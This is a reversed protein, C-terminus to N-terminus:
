DGAMILGQKVNGQGYSEFGRGVVNERRPQGFVGPGDLGSSQRGPMLCPCFAPGGGKLCSLNWLTYGRSGLAAHGQGASCFSPLLLLGIGKQERPQGPVVM